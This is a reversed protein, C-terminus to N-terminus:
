GEIPNIEVIEDGVIFEDMASAEVEGSCVIERADDETEAEVFYTSYSEYKVVVEFTKKNEM